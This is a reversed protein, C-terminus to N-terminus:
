HIDFSMSDLYSVSALLLPPPPPPASDKPHPPIPPLLKINGKYLLEVTEGLYQANTMTM